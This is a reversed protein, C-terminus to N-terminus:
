PVGRPKSHLVVSQLSGRNKRFSVDAELYRTRRDRPTHAAVYDLAHQLFYLSAAIGSSAPQLHFPQGVRVRVLDSWRYGEFGQAVDTKHGARDVAWIRVQWQTSESFPQYGFRKLPDRYAHVVAYLQAAIVSACFVRAWFRKYAEVGAIM